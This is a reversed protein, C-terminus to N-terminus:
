RPGLRADLQEQLDPALGLAGEGPVFPRRPRKGRTLLGVTDYDESAAFQRKVMEVGSRQGWQNINGLWAQTGYAPWRM